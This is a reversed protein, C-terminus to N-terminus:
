VLSARFGPNLGYRYRYEGRHERVMRVAHEQVEPSFENSKKSM